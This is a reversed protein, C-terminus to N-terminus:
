GALTAATVHVSPLLLRAQLGPRANALLLTGGHMVAMASVISLGLGSGPLNRSRDVRYFRETVLPLEGEPIGPGYDRVEICVCEGDDRASVEVLGGDSAYKVSNDILSAVASALLDRDGRIFSATQAIKVLRVHRVEASADYLEVMDRVLDNPDVTTFFRTRMGSEAEAIQLLKDSLAILEDIGDITNQAAERLEEGASGRRLAEDLRGRVRNLPTRLDHAIANSVHRIGNMLHQIRDLMRNIDMGLREFEDSGGIPIRRNFDGQEIDRAARRIQGIRGEIQRRFFVAGAFTLVLAAVVGVALARVVVVRIAEQAQLDSGVVLLREGELARVIYRVHVPQGSRHITRTLLQSLPAVDGEWAPLNGALREQDAGLILLIESDSDLGDRLQREIAEVLEHPPSSSYTDTLRQSISVLKRDIDRELVGITAVYFVLSLLSICAAALVGYGLALRTAISELFRHM